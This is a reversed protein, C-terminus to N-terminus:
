EDPLDLDIVRGHILGLSVEVIFAEPLGTFFYFEYLLDFSM